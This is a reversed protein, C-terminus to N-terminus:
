ETVVDLPLRPKMDIIVFRVGPRLSGSFYFQSMTLVLASISSRTNSPWYLVPDSSSVSQFAGIAASM